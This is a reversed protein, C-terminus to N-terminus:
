SSRRQLPDAAVRELAQERAQAGGRDGRALLARGAHVLDEAPRLPDRRRRARRDDRDPRDRHRPEEVDAPRRPRARDLPHDRRHVAGRRAGRAGDLDDPEGLAPHDGAGDLQRQGPLLPRAGADRRALRADRVAVAGVLVVHRARRPRADLEVGEGAQARAEEETPPASRRATPRTGSRSSTGGGSSARSAGTPRRRSRRSRSATSRSPTTACTARASRRRDGAAGRGGDPVVVAALHAARDALPVARVHRGRPPLARAERALRAGEGVRRDRRRGGVPERGRPRGGPREDPRGARDGDLEPCGTTVASRSTPRTTARAHDQARRLRVGPRRARRRDGAGAARRVPRRGRPRGRRAYREDDPHVAVAVDGLITAPRVTAVLDGGVRRRRRVPLPHVSLTDDMDEHVVELDSIATQHHPCWNVIRNARYIWGKDWLRVFFTLVARVYDEDMTFRERGYDLSAGLRRFQGMITRGTQELWEWTREVFAERGLDHRTLGEAALQKEVVNQTSIGAHDYGPQWLTDFGLMRHWRVLCDQISGNLAHGMHLEGTVNPPPVCIVYSEDRRRGAGAAYLGEAEWTEQWRQEVGDPRYLPEM